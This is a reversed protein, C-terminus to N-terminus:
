ATPAKRGGPSPCADGGPAKPLPHIDNGNDSVENVNDEGVRQILDASRLMAASDTQYPVCASILFRVYTSGLLFLSPVNVIDICTLPPPHLIDSDHGM